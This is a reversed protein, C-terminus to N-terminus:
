SNHAVYKDSDILKTPALANLKALLPVPDFSEYSWWDGLILALKLQPWGIVRIECVHNSKVHSSFIGKVIKERNVFIAPGWEQWPKDYRTVFGEDTVVKTLRQIDNQYDSTLDYSVLVKTLNIAGCSKCKKDYIISRCKICIRHQM